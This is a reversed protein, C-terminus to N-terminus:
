NFESYNLFSYRNREKATVVKHCNACLVMCKAIEEDIKKISKDQSISYALEFSKTSPDIHHFELCVPKTEWCHECPHTELYKRIYIKKKARHKARLEPTKYM